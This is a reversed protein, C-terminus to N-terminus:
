EVLADNERRTVYGITFLAGRNHPPAWRTPASFCSLPRAM